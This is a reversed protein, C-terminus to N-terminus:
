RRSAAVLLEIHRTLRADRIRNRLHEPMDMEALLAACRKLREDDENTADSLAIGSRHLASRIEVPVGGPWMEKMRASVDTNLYSPYTVASVDICDVDMLKRSSYTGGNDDPLTEWSQDRATFAFSCQDLDGRRVLAYLDRAQQTNPLIVRFKLGVGDEELQLTQNKTRGFIKSPDHNMLFKVDAGERISRSFAGPLVTERFGGLDQSQSNFVAAHGTLIGLDGQSEARLEKSFRREIKKDNMPSVGTNSIKLEKALRKAHHVTMM